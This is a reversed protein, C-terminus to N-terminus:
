DRIRGECYWPEQILAMDIGKLSVTRSLVRSAAINHQLIAKIFSTSCVMDCEAEEEEDIEREV